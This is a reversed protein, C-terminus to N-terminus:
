QEMLELITKKNVKEIRFENIKKLYNNIEPLIIKMFKKKNALYYHTLSINIQNLKLIKKKCYPNSNIRKELNKLYKYYRIKPLNTIKFHKEIKNVISPSFNTYKEFALKCYSYFTKANSLRYKELFIHLKKYILAKKIDTMKCKHNLNEFVNYNKLRNIAMSFANNVTKENIGPIIYKIEVMNLKAGEKGFIISEAIYSLANTKEKQTKANYLKILGYVYMSDSNLLNIGRILNKIAAKPNQKYFYLKSLIINADDNNCSSDYFIKLATNLVNRKIKILDTSIPHFPNGIGYLTFNGKNKNIQPIFINIEGGFNPYYLNKLSNNKLKVAANNKNTINFMINNIINNEKLVASTALHYPDRRFNRYITDNINKTLVEIGNKLNYKIDNKLLTIKLSNRIIAGDIKNAIFKNKYILNNDSEQISLGMYGNLFSFNNFIYNHSSSRDLMIGASHNNFSMNEAIITYDVGRSIVIGHAHLAKATINRAIILHKSYDHPDIDYIKNDYILNGILTTNKAHACYFGMMNKTMTNGIYDGVPAGLENLITLLSFNNIIYKKPYKIIGIGFPGVTSHFGLGTFKNNLFLTYSGSLGLFYPRPTQKGILLLENEPIYERKAYSNNKINWTLFESNKAYISGHYMIFVPKPKTELLVKKNNIVLKATPSIYIPVTIEYTNKNIKKIYSNKLYKSLYELSYVGNYLVLVKQSLNHKKYYRYFEYLNILPMFNIKDINVFEIGKGYFHKPFKKLLKKPKYKDLIKNLNLKKVTSDQPIIIYKDKFTVNHKVIEPTKFNFKVHHLTYNAEKYTRFCGYYSLNNDWIIRKDILNCKPEIFGISDRFNYPYVPTFLGTQTLISYCKGYVAITIFILFIIKKM